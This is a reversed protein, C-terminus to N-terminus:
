RHNSYGIKIVSFPLTFAVFIPPLEHGKKGRSKRKQNSTVISSDDQKNGTVESM